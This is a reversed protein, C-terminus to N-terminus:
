KKKDGGGIKESIRAMFETFEIPVVFKTSPAKGVEEL